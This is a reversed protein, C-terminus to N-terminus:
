SSPLTHQTPPLATLIPSIWGVVRAQINIWCPWTCAPKLRIHHRLHGCLMHCVGSSWLLLLASIYEIYILHLYCLLYGNVLLADAFCWWSTLSHCVLVLCGWGYYLIPPSLLRVGPRQNVLPLCQSPSWRFCRPLRSCRSPFRSALWSQSRSLSAVSAAGLSHEWSWRGHQVFTPFANWCTGSSCQCDTLWM